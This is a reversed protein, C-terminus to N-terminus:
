KGGLLTRRKVNAKGLQMNRTLITGQRGAAKRSVTRREMRKRRQKVDAGQSGLNGLNGLNGGSGMQKRRERLKEIKGQINSRKKRIAQMERDFKIYAQRRSPPQLPYPSRQERLEKKSPFSKKDKSRKKDGSPLEPNPGRKKDESPLEPNLSRKEEDKKQQRVSMMSRSRNKKFDVM